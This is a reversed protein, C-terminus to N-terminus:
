LPINQKFRATKQANDAAAQSRTAPPVCVHDEPGCAERWVFGQKCTDPGFPGGSPQRRSQALGTDQAAQARTAPPVCVHDDPSCAERWVFGRKCTERGFDGVAWAPAAGFIAAALLLTGLWAQRVARQRASAAIRM